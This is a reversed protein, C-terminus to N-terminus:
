ESASRVSKFPELHVIVQTNKNLEEKIRDEIGHILKHSEEISMNSDLMIHMDIHIDDETGRSRINHADKVEEFGMAIEKIRDADIAVKDVLVSSTSAFIEHAAHLIFGSVILSVMPDIIVPAGLKICILTIIVGLSIFIDSRTHISDSILIQSNLKKGIKLEYVSVFINIGLTVLLAIISEVTIDTFIPNFLRNIADVIIKGGVFALMIAIFMGSLTEFKKHGYPHDEDVPKSALRIGLLGVINSSGDSLSHVGDATMSASKIMNGVAIKLIAVLLNAFLIIWLVKRIEKYNNKEM